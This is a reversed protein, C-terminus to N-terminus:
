TSFCSGGPVISTSLYSKRRFEGYLIFLDISREFVAYDDAMSCEAMSFMRHWVDRKREGERGGKRAWWKRLLLSVDTRTSCRVYGKLHKSNEIRKLYSMRRFGM